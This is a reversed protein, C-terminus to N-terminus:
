NFEQVCLTQASSVSIANVQDTSFSLADMKFQGGNATLAIGAGVVAPNSKQGAADNIGLYILNASTNTIILGARAANAPVVVVSAAGVTTNSPALASLAAPIGQSQIPGKQSSM